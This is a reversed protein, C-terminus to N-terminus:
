TSALSEAAAKPTPDSRRKCTHVVLSLLSCVHGPWSESTWWDGEPGGAVRHGQGQRTSPTCHTDPLIVSCPHALCVSGPSSM